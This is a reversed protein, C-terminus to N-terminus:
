LHESPQNKQREKASFVSFQPFASRLLRYFRHLQNNVVEVINEFM